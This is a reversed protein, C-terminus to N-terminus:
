PIYVARSLDAITTSGGLTVGNAFPTHAITNATAAQSNTIKELNQIQMWSFLIAGVDSEDFIGNAIGFAFGARALEATNGALNYTQQAFGYDSMTRALSSIAQPSGPGTTVIDQQLTNFDHQLNATWANSNKLGKDVVLQSVVFPLLSGAASPMDRPELQELALRVRFRKSQSPTM